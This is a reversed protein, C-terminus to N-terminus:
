SCQIWLVCTGIVRQEAVESAFWNWQGVETKVHLVHNLRPAKVAEM